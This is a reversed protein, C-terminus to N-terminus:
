GDKRISRRSLGPMETLLSLERRLGKLFTITIGVDCKSGRM